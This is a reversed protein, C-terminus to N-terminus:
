ISDAKKKLKKVEGDVRVIPEGERANEENSDVIKYFGSGSM